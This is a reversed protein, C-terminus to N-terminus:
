RYYREIALQEDGGSKKLTELFRRVDKRNRFRFSKKPSYFRTDFTTRNPRPVKRKMWGEPFEEAPIPAIHADAHDLTPHKVSSRGKKTAEESRRHKVAEESQRRRQRRQEVEYDLTAIKANEESIGSPDEAHYAFAVPFSSEVDEEDFNAEAVGELIESVPSLSSVAAAFSSTDDRHLQLADDMRSGLKENLSDKLEDLVYYNRGDVSSTARRTGDFAAEVLSLIKEKMEDGPAITANDNKRVCSERIYFASQSSAAAFHLLPDDESGGKGCDRCSPREVQQQGMNVEERARKAGSLRKKSSSRKRHKEVAITPPEIDRGRLAGSLEQWYSLNVRDKVLLNAHNAIFLKKLEDDYPELDEEKLPPSKIDDFDFPGVL